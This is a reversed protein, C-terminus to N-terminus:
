GNTTKIENLREKELEHRKEFEKASLEMLHAIEDRKQSIEHWLQNIKLCYQYERDISEKIKDM